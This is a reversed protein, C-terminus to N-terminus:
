PWSYNNPINECPDTTYNLNAAMHAFDTYIIINEHAVLDGNSWKQTNYHIEAMAFVGRVECM